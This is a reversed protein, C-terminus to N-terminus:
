AAQSGGSEPGNRLFPRWGSPTAPQEAVVQVAQRQIDALEAHLKSVEHEGWIPSTVQHHTIATVMLFRAEAPTMKEDLWDTREMTKGAQRGGPNPVGRDAPDSWGAPASSLTETGATHWCM